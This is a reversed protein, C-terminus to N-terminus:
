IRDCFWTGIASKTRRSGLAGTHKLKIEIVKWRVHTILIRSNEVAWITVQVLPSWTSGTLVKYHTEWWYPGHPSKRIM